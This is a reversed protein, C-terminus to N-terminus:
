KECLLLVSQSAATALVETSRFRKRLAAIFDDLTHRPSTPSDWKRTSGGGHPNFEVVLWRKSFMALGEALLDFTLHRDDILHDVIRLAVTLDCQLRDTAAISYHNSYGVSPTPKMFDMLLPLVPLGMLRAERYRATVSAPDTDFVVVQSGCAAAQSAQRGADSGILLVSSPQLKRMLAALTQQFLSFPADAADDEPSGARPRPWATEYSPLPLNEIDERIQNLFRLLSTHNMRSRIPKLVRRMLKSMIFGPPLSFRTLTLFESRLIGDYEPLLARAIREQGCCMLVLPYYCFRTFEDFALWHSDRALPVISTLDVFVPRAAAFLLNWPHGDKISLGHPALALALDVLTCVADKFMATCWENPYSIFPLQKHRVVLAFPELRLATQESDILLGKDVLDAIVASQLLGQFFTARAPRIGRYLQGRWYFLRGDSDAFSHPHFAVEHPSISAPSAKIRSQIVM